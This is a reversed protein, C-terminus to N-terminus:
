LAVDAFATSFAAVAFAAASFPQWLPILSCFLALIFALALVIPGAALAIGLTNVGGGVDLESAMVMCGIRGDDVVGIELVSNPLWGVETSADWSDFNSSLLFLLELADFIVPLKYVVELWGM